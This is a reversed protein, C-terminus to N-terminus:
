SSSVYYHGHTAARSVYEGVESARVKTEQHTRARSAPVNISLPDGFTCQRVTHALVQENGAVLLGRVVGVNREGAAHM